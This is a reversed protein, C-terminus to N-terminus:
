SREKLEREYKFQEPVGYRRDNPRVLDATAITNRAPGM